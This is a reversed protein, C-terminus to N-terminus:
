QSGGTSAGVSPDGRLGALYAILDDFESASLKSEYSPMLSSHFEKKLNALASKRFSFVRGSADRLQITFIDENVRMGRVTKGDRTTATIM